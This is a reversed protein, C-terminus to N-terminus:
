ASSASGSSASIAARPVAAASSRCSVNRAYARAEAETIVLPPAIRIVKRALPGMLHIGEGGEEGRYCALVVKNAWDVASHGGHDCMEIGWVMGGKEGRVHAVFPLEKLRVLSEEM